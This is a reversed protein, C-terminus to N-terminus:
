KLQPKNSKGGGGGGERGREISEPVEGLRVRQQFCDLMM